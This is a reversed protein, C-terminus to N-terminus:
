SALLLFVAIMSWHGVMKKKKRKDKKKINALQRSGIAQQRIDLM